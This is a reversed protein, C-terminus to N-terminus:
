GWPNGGRGPFSPGCGDGMDAVSFTTGPQGQVILIAAAVQARLSFLTELPVARLAMGRIAIDETATTATGNGALRNAIANDLNTAYTQLTALPVSLLYGSLDM